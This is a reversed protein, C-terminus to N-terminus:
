ALKVNYHSASVMLCLTSFAILLDYVVISILAL